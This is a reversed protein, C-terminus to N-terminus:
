RTLNVCQWFRRLECGHRRVRWGFVIKLFYVAIITKGEARSKQKSRLTSALSLPAESLVITRAAAPCFPATANAVVWQLTTRVACPSDRAACFASSFSQRVYQRGM